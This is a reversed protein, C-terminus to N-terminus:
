AYIAEDPPKEADVNPIGGEYKYGEAEFTRMSQLLQNQQEVLRELKDPDDEQKIKDLLENLLKM